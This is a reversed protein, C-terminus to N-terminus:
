LAIALCAMGSSGVCLRPRLYLVSQPHHHPPAAPALALGRPRGILRRPQPTHPTTAGRQGSVRKRQWRWSPDCEVGDKTQVGWVCAGAHSSSSRRDSCAQVDMSGKRGARRGGGASSGPWGGVGAYFSVGSVARKAHSIPHLLATAESCSRAMIFIPCDPLAASCNPSGARASAMGVGIGDAM